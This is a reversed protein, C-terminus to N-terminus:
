KVLQVLINLIKKKNSHAILNGYKLDKTARAEFEAIWDRQGFEDAVTEYMSFNASVPTQAHQRISNTAREYDFILLAVKWGYFEGAEYLM